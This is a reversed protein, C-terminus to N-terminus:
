RSRDDPNLRTLIFDSTTPSWSGIVLKGDPQLVVARGAGSTTMNSFKGDVGFTADLSGDPNYRAVLLAPGGAAVLKGDPQRVLATVSELFGDFNTIVKGGVGFTTDLSGDPLYQVLGVDSGAAGGRALGAAVLKGDPLSALANAQDYDQLATQDGLNTTVTGATGFTVDLSGDPLYRSISFDRNSEGAVVIKGDAQLAVALAGTGGGAVIGGTGFTPDLTGAAGQATTGGSRLLVTSM